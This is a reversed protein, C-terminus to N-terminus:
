KRQKIGRWTSGRMEEFHLTHPSARERGREKDRGGRKKLVPPLDCVSPRKCKTQNGHHDPRWGAFLFTNSRVACGTAEERRRQRGLWNFGERPISKNAFLSRTCRPQNNPIALSSHLHFCIFLYVFICFVLLSCCCLNLLLFGISPSLGEREGRKRRGMDREERSGRTRKKRCERECRVRKVLEIGIGESRKRWSLGTAQSKPVSLRRAAVAVVCCDGGGDSAHQM